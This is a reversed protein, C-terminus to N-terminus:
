PTFLNWTKTLHHSVFQSKISPRLKQFYETYKRRKLGSSVCASPHCKLSSRGHDRREAYGWGSGNREQTWCRVSTWRSRSSWQCFWWHTDGNAQAHRCHTSNYQWRQVSFLAARIHTLALLSFHHVASAQLRCFTNINKRDDLSFGAQQFRWSRIGWWCNHGAHPKFM